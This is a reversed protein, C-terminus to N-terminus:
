IRCRMDRDFAYKDAEKNEEKCDLCVRNGQSYVISSYQEKVEGCKTCTLHKLEENTLEKSM